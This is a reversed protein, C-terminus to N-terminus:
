EERAHQQQRLRQKEKLMTRFDQMLQAEKQQNEEMTILALARQEEASYVQNEKRIRVANMRAHRSGSMVYGQKEFHEIDDGSYGIEGRRPIRLNQQVYAALAQGEGPLLAGGYSAATMSETANSQPLPMPGVQDNDDDDDSHHGQIAVKFDQAEKMEQEDIGLTPEDQDFDQSTSKDNINEKKRERLSSEDSRADSSNSNSGSSSSSSTSPSRRRRRRRRRSERARQRRRRRRRRREEESSSTSESSASSSSVTSDSDSNDSSEANRTPQKEQKPPSPSRAWILLSTEPDRVSRWNLVRARLLEQRRKARLELSRNNPHIGRSGAIDGRRVNTDHQLENANMEGTDQNINRMSLRIRRQDVDLILAFVIQGMRVVDEVKEIRHFALNSIHVLGRYHHRRGFDVFAGYSEIRSVRGQVITGPRLSDDSEERGDDHHAQSIRRNVDEERRRRDNEDRGGDRGNGFRHHNSHQYERGDNAMSRSSRSHHGQPSEEHYEHRESHDRRNSDSGRRDDRGAVDGERHRNADGHSRGFEDRDDNSQDHSSFVRAM